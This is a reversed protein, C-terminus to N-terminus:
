EQYKNMIALALKRILIIDQDLANLNNKTPTLIIENESKKSHVCYNRIKYIRRCLNECFKYKEESKINDKFRKYKFDYINNMNDVVTTSDSFIKESLFKLKDMMDRLIKFVIETGLDDCIVHKLQVEEKNDVGEKFYHNFMQEFLQYYENDNMNNNAFEVAVAKKILEKTKNISTKLFYYELIHYYELYKFHPAQINEASMFYQMCELNNIVRLKLKEDLGKPESMNIDKYSFKPYYLVIGSKSSLNVLVSYILKDILEINPNDNVYLDSINELELIVINDQVLEEIEIQNMEEFDLQPMKFVKDINTTLIPISEKNIKINGKISGYSEIQISNNLHNNYDYLICVIFDEGLLLYNDYNKINSIELNYTEMDCNITIERQQEDIFKGLSNNEQEVKINSELSKLQKNLKKLFDFSSIVNM